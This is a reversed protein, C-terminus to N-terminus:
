PDYEEIDVDSDSDSVDGQIEGQFHPNRKKCQPCEKWKPVCEDCLAFCNSNCPCAFTKNGTFGVEHCILCRFSLKDLEELAKRLTEVTERTERVTVETERVAVEMPRMRRHFLTSIRQSLDKIEVDHAQLRKKIVNNAPAKPRNKKGSEVISIVTYQSGNQPGNQVKIVDYLKVEHRRGIQMNNVTVMVGPQPEVTIRGFRNCLLKFSNGVKRSQIKRNEKFQKRFKNGVEKELTVNLYGRFMRTSEGRGARSRTGSAM